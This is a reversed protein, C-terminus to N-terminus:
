ITARHVLLRTSHTRIVGYQAIIILVNFYVHLFHLLLVSIYLLLLLTATTPTHYIISTSTDYEYYFFLSSDM